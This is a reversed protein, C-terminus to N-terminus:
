EMGDELQLPLTTVIYRWCIANIVANEDKLAFYIHGSSATKIGSTEGKILINHFSNEIYQKIILSIETVTYLANNKNYDKNTINYEKILMKPIYKKFRNDFLGENKLKKKM